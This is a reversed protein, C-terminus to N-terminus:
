DLDESCDTSLKNITKLPKLKIQQDELSDVYIENVKLKQLGANM